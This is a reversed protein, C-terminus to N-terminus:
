GGQGAAVGEGRRERRRRGTRERGCVAVSRARRWRGRRAPGLEHDFLSPTLAIWSTAAGGPARTLRRHSSHATDRLKGSGVPPYASCTCPSLSSTRYWTIKRVGSSRSITAMWGSSVPDDGVFQGAMSVM